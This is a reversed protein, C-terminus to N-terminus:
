KVTEKVTINNEVEKVGEVKKALDGARNKQERSNVFGSLQVVGKFTQVKVDDYKYQTDDSLAGRVRTSEAKDDIHEGTSQTYRDGACGTLSGTMALAGVSLILASLKLVRGTTVSTNKM